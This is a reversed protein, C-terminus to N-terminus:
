ILPIPYPIGDVVVISGLIMKQKSKDGYAFAFSEQDGLWGTAAGWLQQMKSARYQVGFKSHHHGQVVNLGYAIAAQLSDPFEEGHCVLIDPGCIVFQDKIKWTKPLEFIEEFSRVVQSPLEAGIAKKMIRSDHNSDAIKLEPFAKAWKRLKERSIDLEQNVTIKADPNKPWRSFHYLDLIDGVSYINEHPINFDKQLQKCFELARPHEFPIHVDGIFLFNNRNGM